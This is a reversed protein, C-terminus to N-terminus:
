PTHRGSNPRINTSANTYRGREVADCPELWSLSPDRILACDVGVKVLDCGISCMKWCDSSRKGVRNCITNLHELDLAGFVLVQSVWETSRYREVFVLDSFNMVVM